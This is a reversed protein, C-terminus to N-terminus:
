TRAPIPKKFKEWWVPSEGRRNLMNSLEKKIQLLRNSRLEFASQELPTHDNQQSYGTNLDRLNTIEQRLNILRESIYDM